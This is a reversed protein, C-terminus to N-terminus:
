GCNIDLHRQVLTENLQTGTERHAKSTECSAKGDANNTISTDSSSCLLWSQEDAHNTEELRTNMHLGAAYEHM